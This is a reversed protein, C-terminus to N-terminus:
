LHLSVPQHFDNSSHNLQLLAELEKLLKERFPCVFVTLCTGENECSNCETVIEDFLIRLTKGM